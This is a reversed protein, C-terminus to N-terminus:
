LGSDATQGTEKDAVKGKIYSVPEPRVSEYLNFSYINKGGADDHKSSFYAKKGGSEIVLGM